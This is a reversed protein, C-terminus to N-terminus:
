KKLGLDKELYDMIYEPIDDKYLSIKTALRKLVDFKSVVNQAEKYDPIKGNSLDNLFRTVEASIEKLKNLVKTSRTDKQIIYLRDKLAKRYADVDYGSKDSDFANINRTLATAGKKNERRIRRIDYNSVNNFSKIIFIRDANEIAQKKNKFMNSSQAVIGLTKGDDMNEIVAFEPRGYTGSNYYCIVFKDKLKGPTISGIPVEEFTTKEIDVQLAGSLVRSLRKLLDSPFTDLMEKSYKENLQSEAELYEDIKDLLRM